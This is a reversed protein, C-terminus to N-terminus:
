FFGESVVVIDGPQLLIDEKADGSMAKVLNIKISQYGPKDPYQRLLKVRSKSGFRTFGGATSIARLVTVNDELQYTGPRVVEGSVTYRRSNSEILSVVVVPYKLYGSALRWQITKQIESITKGKVQVSGIYAVSIEGGPTVTSRDTIIEPKLIRVELIDGAGIKYQTDDAYSPYLMAIVFIMSLVSYRKM